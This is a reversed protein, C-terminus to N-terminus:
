SGRDWRSDTPVSPEERRRAAAIAERAKWAILAKREVVMTASWLDHGTQRLPNSLAVAMGAFPLLLSDLTKAFSRRVMQGFRPPGGTLSHVRLGFLLKAPTASFLCETLLWYGPIWLLVALARDGDLRRQGPGMETGWSQFALDVVVVVILLDLLGAALRLGWSAPPPAGIGSHPVLV